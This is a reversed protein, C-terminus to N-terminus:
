VFHNFLAGTRSELMGSHRPAYRASDRPPSPMLSFIEIEFYSSGFLGTCANM